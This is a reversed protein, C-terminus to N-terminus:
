RVKQYIKFEGVEKYWKEWVKDIATPVIEEWGIHEEWLCQLLVKPIIIDLSCWGPYQIAKCYWVDTAAQRTKRNRLSVSFNAQVHGHHHRM